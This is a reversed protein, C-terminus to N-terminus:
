LSKKKEIWREVNRDLLTLPMSGNKLVLDHFDRINFKDGLERKARERLELFKLRGVMYGCGQGPSVLYRDVGGWPRGWYEETKDLAKQKSWRKYHMGTDILARIARALPFSHPARFVGPAITENFEYSRLLTRKSYNVM